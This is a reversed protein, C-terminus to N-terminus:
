AESDGDTSGDGGFGTTRARDKLSTGTRTTHFKTPNDSLILAWKNSKHRRELLGDRLAADEEPTWPIRKRKARAPPPPMTGSGDGDRGRGSVRGDDGAAGAARDAADAGGTGDAGEAGHAADARDAGNAGEAADAGDAGNAGEARDAGDAGDAGDTPLRGTGANHKANQPRRDNVKDSWMLFLERWDEAKAEAEDRVQVLCV